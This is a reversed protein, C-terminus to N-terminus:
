KWNNLLEKVRQNRPDIELVREYNQKAKARDGTQVYADGLADYVAPQQPFLKVNLEFLSLALSTKGGFLLEHGYTNLFREDYTKGDERCLDAIHQEIYTIGKENLLHYLTIQMPYTLPPYPQGKLLSNLRPGIRDASAGQNCVIVFAYGDNGYGLVANWPPTGGAFLGPPYAYGSPLTHESRAQTFLLLDGATTYIGGDPHSNSIDDVTVKNGEFGTIHGYARKAQAAKEAKTYYIHKLGMPAAIRERLNEEYSKGTVKEIVAGLVAYGSNSYAEGKGPEFLLPEKRIIQLIDNLSFDNQEIQHFEPSDFYDGLGSRMNILEAITIQDGTEKPFLDLYKSLPDSESLKGEKVLQHILEQTFLKTLSGINYLTNKTIPTKNRWDAYGYQKGYVPQDNQTILLTGSFLGKSIADNILLNTKNAVSDQATTMQAYLLGTVALVFLKFKKM